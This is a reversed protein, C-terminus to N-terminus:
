PVLVFRRVTVAAGDFAPVSTGKMMSAVCSGVTTGALPSGGDVIATTARGSPAYTVNVTAGGKTRGDGCSKAARAAAGVAAKAATKDFKRPEPEDAGLAAMLKARADSVEGESDLKPKAKAEVPSASVDPQEVSEKREVRRRPQHRRRHKKPAAAPKAEAIELETVAIQHVSAEMLAASAGGAHAVAAGDRGVADAAVTAGIGLAFALPAIWLGVTRRAPRMSMDEISLDAVMPMPTPRDGSECAVSDDPDGAQLGAVPDPWPTEDFLVHNTYPDHGDAPLRSLLGALSPFSPKPTPNRFTM